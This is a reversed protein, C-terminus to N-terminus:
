NFTVSDIERNDLWISLQLAKWLLQAHDRRGSAHEEFVERVVQEEFWGRKGSHALIRNETYNRLPGRLWSAIPVGFGFKPAHLIEDPVIGNLVQRLLKKRQGFGVKHKSPLASVYDVLDFDLFPVRVEISTAMTARDVKELFIDPLLIQLDTILMAQLDDYPPLSSIVERYRAFPDQQTAHERIDKQLIRTPLNLPGEVSLLLGMREAMDSQSLGRFFRHMGFTRKGYHGNLLSLVRDITRTFKRLQPPIRLYSYRRYGGFLEDGGDGQLIVKTDGNLAQCLQFLPLNAPDAFPQDHALALKEIVDVISGGSIHLEHHETGFHQATKKARSLESGDGIYDFGVTYTRLKGEYYKSALAVIASSDVGGSLFAGVPVDSTLQREVAKSLLRRTDSVIEVSNHRKLSDPPMQSASWFCVPESIEGSVLDLSIWHGAPLRKVGEFFTVTGLTNGFYLYEHLGALNPRIEFLGSALISKIESGFALRGNHFRYYCPKIGLRDRVLILKSKSRDLIAFAFMGNLRDFSATGWKEYAALVVETDSRSIFERTGALERKLELFNYVEGNFCIIQREGANTMPQNAEASLDIISLRNHGIACQNKSDVYVNQADPGRHHQSNVMRKVSISLKDAGIEPAFIGSIGCM